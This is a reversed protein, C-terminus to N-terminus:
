EATGAVSLQKQWTSLSGGVAGGARGTALADGGQGRVGKQRRQDCRGEPGARVGLENMDGPKQQHDPQGM